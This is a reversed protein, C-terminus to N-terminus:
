GGTDLFEVVQPMVKGSEVFAQMHTLGPLSFFRSNRIRESASRAQSFVPDADGAYVCCPMAMADLMDELSGRGQQAALYAELDAARLRAAYADSIPGAMKVFASVFADGGGIKGERVLQRPGAQDSAFPHQGGIVLAHVRHPAHRAMGFGIWGGMSYGWFHAKEVKVADLV